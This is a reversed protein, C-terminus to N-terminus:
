GCSISLSKIIKVVWFPVYGNGGTGSTLIDSVMTNQDLRLKADKVYLETYPAYSGLGLNDFVSLKAQKLIM